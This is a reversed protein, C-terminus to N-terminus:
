FIINSSLHEQLADGTNCSIQTYQTKNVPNMHSDSCEPSPKEAGHLSNALVCLKHWAESQFHPLHWYPMIDDVTNHYQTRSYLLVCSSGHFCYMSHLKNYSLRHIADIITPKLKTHSILWVCVDTCACNRMLLCFDAHVFDSMNSWLGATSTTNCLHPNFTWM